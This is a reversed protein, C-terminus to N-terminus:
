SGHLQDVPAGSQRALVRLRLAELRERGGPGPPRTCAAEAKREHWARFFRSERKAEEEEERARAKTRASRRNGDGYIDPSEPMAKPVDTAM